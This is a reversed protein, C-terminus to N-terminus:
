LMLPVQEVIENVELFSEVSHPVIAESVDESAKVDIFSENLDDLGEIFM